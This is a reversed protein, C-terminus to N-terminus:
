EDLVEYEVNLIFRGDSMYGNLSVIKYRNNVERWVDLRTIALEASYSNITMSVTELNSKPNNSPSVSPNDPSVNSDRNAPINPDM